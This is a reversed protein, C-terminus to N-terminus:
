LAGVTTKEAAQSYTNQMEPEESYSLQESRAASSPNPEPQPLPDLQKTIVLAEGRAQRVLELTDTYKRVFAIASQVSTNEDTLPNGDWNQATFRLAFRGSLPLSCDVDIRGSAAHKCCISFLEEACILIRAYDKGDIQNATLQEKLFAQLIPVNNMEPSLTLQARERSGRKYELTLLALDDEPEDHGTFASVADLVEQNLQQLTLDRNRSENLRSRLREAGFTEGNVAEAQLIGDSYFLLRDGQRLQMSLERYSVNESIGMPVCAASTLFEYQEGQRMVVPANHAANIYTLVGENTDFIGVFASIPLKQEMSHYVQRNIQTMTDALSRESSFQSKIITKVVVLLMAAPIGTNDMGCMVIGIRHDDLVFYDYFNNGMKKSIRFCGQIALYKKGPFAPLEGPLMSQLINSAVELETAIREKVAALDAKEDMHATIDSAMKQFAESLTQLEDGTQVTDTFGSLDRNAAFSLTQDTLKGLPKSIMRRVSLAQLLITIAILLFYVTMMIMLSRRISSMVHTLTFDVEVVASVEGQSDFVPTWASVGSGFFLSERSIIVGQSPRKAELDPLLYNYEVKTYPYVDGLSSIFDPDDDPTRAEVIYTFSDTGPVYVYLYTLELKEKINDLTQQLQLYADDSELTIAYSGITDGDVHSAALASAHEAKESYFGTAQNWMIYYGFLSIVVGLLVAFGTYLITLKVHLTQGRKKM